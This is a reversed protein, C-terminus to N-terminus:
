TEFQFGEYSTLSTMNAIHWPRWHCKTSHKWIVITHTNVTVCCPVYGGCKYNHLLLEPPFFSINECTFIGSNIERIFGWLECRDIYYYLNNLNRDTAISINVCQPLWTCWSPNQDILLQELKWAPSWRHNIHVRQDNLWIYM